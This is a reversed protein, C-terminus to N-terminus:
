LPLGPANKAATFFLHDGLSGRATLTEVRSREALAEVYGGPDGSASAAEQAQRLAAIADGVGLNLLADRQTSISAESFGAVGAARGLASFNVHSTIDQFGPRELPDIGLAGDTYTVLTGAPRSVFIDPEIDGYDVVLLHGRKMAEAAKQCWPVLGLSIEFRDEAELWQMAYLEGALGATTLPRAVEVLRGGEAGVLIEVPVTEGVEILRVPFNDLVENALVCGGAVDLQDLNEVWRAAVGVEELGEKQVARPGPFREVFVWQLRNRLRMPAGLFAGAALSGDGGGVEVVTYEEPEDLAHWSMELLRSIARGFARTLTPSTHFGAGRGPVRTSYYGATPDYLAAEMFEAFTLPGEREIRRLLTDIM